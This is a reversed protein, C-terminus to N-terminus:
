ENGHGFCTAIKEGREIDVRVTKDNAVTAFGNCKRNAFNEISRGNRLYSFMSFGLILIYTLSLKWYNNLKKKFIEGTKLERIMMLTQREINDRGIDDVTATAQTSLAMARQVVGQVQRQTVKEHNDLCNSMTTIREQLDDLIM